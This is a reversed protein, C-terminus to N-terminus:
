KNPYFFGLHIFRWLDNEEMPLKDEAMASEIYHLPIIPNHIQAPNKEADSTGAILKKRDKKTLFMYAGIPM